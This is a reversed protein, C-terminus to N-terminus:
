VGAYIFTVIIQPGVYYCLASFLALVILVPALFYARNEGVLEVMGNMVYWSKKFM